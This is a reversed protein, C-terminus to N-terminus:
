ELAIVVLRTTLSVGNDDYVGRAGVHRVLAGAAIREELDTAFNAFGSHLQPVGDQVLIYLGEGDERPIIQPASAQDLLDIAVQGRVLYHFLGVGEMNLTIGDVTVSEIASASAPNWSTVMVARLQTVDVVSQAEFDKPAQGFPRVFGRVKVPAGDALGSVDLSGEDIEYMLPNADNESTTGTGNFDFLGVRRGDIAQLNVVFPVEPTPVVQIVAMGVVTGRLTTLRMQLWGVNNVGADMELQSANDNTLTGFVRIRQGVSVDDISYTNAISLQRKVTTMDGLNVTVHDNFIVSGDTRVLTAGKVTLSDGSRAIVNGTVVDLDGGPVSSGAYVERAEFRRPHLKLDGIVVIATFLPEADLAVLGSQGEYSEGNIDFITSNTTVVDLTGFDRRHDADILHHFPRIIVEFKNVDVDVGALPGRLRHVKPREPELDALLFPEVTQTPNGANDFVVNNSAKLDYDLTLHSPVGPVILLRNRDELQVSVELQSLPSGESDIINDVKVAEGSANEVWIDANSYDLVMSAKVYVGGPVTAATLFETMDTYQSFDVRTKLPLTEVVAGNAKTLKLSLVDVTYTAFEGEADTLGIVVEGDGGGSSENTSSNEINCAVQSLSTLLLVLSFVWRSFLSKGCSEVSKQIQKHEM